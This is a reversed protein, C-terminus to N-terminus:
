RQFSQTSKKQRDDQTPTPRERVNTKPNTPWGYTSYGGHEPLVRLQWDEPFAFRGPWTLAIAERVQCEVIDVITESMGTLHMSFVKLPSAIDMGAKRAEHHEVADVVKAYIGDVIFQLTRKLEAATFSRRWDRSVIGTGTQFKEAM